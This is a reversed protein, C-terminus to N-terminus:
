GEAGLAFPCLIRCRNCNCVDFGRDNTSYTFERCRKQSVTTGDLAKTPCANLCIRCGERCLKEAPPDSKLELNTLLAGINIMNGYKKNILLTNKGFTGLGALWAAHKMSLLGRGELREKDWYEYPSDSPVPVAIGGLSEIANCAKLCIRDLEALSQNNTHNYLIRPSVHTLGKPLHQGFVVVSKCDPYLDTPRYGEPAGEFKEAGAIGCIDAGLELLIRKIEEEM